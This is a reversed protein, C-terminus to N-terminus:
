PHEQDGSSEVLGWGLHSSGGIPSDLRDREFGQQYWADFADHAIDDDVSVSYVKGNRTNEQCRIPASGCVDLGQAEACARSSHRGATQTMATRFQRLASQAGLEPRWGLSAPRHRLGGEVLSHGDTVRGNRALHDNNFMSSDEATSHEKGLRVRHM